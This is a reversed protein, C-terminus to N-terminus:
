HSFGSNRHGHEIAINTQWLTASEVSIRPTKKKEGEQHWLLKSKKPAMKPVVLDIAM